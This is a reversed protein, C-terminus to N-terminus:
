SVLVIARHVLSVERTKSRTMAREVHATEREVREFPAVLSPWPQEHQVSARCVGVPEVPHGVDEGVPEV